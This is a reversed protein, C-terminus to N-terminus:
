AGTNTAIPIKAAVNEAENLLKIPADRTRSANDFSLSKPGNNFGTFLYETGPFGIQATKIVQNRICHMINILLNFRIACTVDTKKRSEYKAVLKAQRLKVNVEAGFKRGINLYKLQFVAIIPIIPVKTMINAM